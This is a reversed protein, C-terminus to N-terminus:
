DGPVHARLLPSGMRLLFSVYSNTQKNTQKNCNLYLQYIVHDLSSVLLLTINTSEVSNIHFYYIFITTVETITFAVPMIFSCLFSLYSTGLILFFFDCYDFFLAFVSWMYATLHNNKSSCIKSVYIAFVCIILIRFFFNNIILPKSSLGLFQFYNGTFHHLGCVINRSSNKFVTGTEKREQGSLM